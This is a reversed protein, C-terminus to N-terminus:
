AARRIPLRGLSSCGKMWYAADFVDIKSNNKRSKLSTVLKPIAEKEFLAVIAHREERSLPWFRESLPINPKIDRLRERAPHEWTRNMAQRMVVRVCEPREEGKGFPTLLAREYGVM